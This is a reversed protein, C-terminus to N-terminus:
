SLSVEEWEAKFIRYSRKHTNITNHIEDENAKIANRATEKKYYTGFLMSRQDGDAVRTIDILVAYPKPKSAFAM